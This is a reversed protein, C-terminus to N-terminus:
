WMVIIYTLRKHCYNIHLFCKAIIIIIVFILAFCVRVYSTYQYIGWLRIVTSPKAKQKRSCSKSNEDTTLSPAPSPCRPCCTWRYQRGFCVGPFFGDTICYKRNVQFIYIYHYPLLNKGDWSMYFMNHNRVQELAMDKVKCTMQTKECLNDEAGHTHNGRPKFDDAGTQIVSAPCKMTTNRVSCRWYTKNGRTM